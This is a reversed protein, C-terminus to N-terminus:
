FHLHIKLFTEAEGSTIQKLILTGDSSKCFKSKSKGGENKMSVISSISNMFASHYDKGLKLMRFAEFNRGCYFHVDALKEKGSSLSMCVDICQVDLFQQVSESSHTNSFYATVNRSVTNEEFIPDPLNNLIKQYEPSQLSTALISLSDSCDVVHHAGDFNLLKPSQFNSIVAPFDNLVEFISTRSLTFGSPFGRFSATDTPSCSIYGDTSRSEFVSKELGPSSAVPIITSSFDFSTDGSHDTLLPDDDTLLHSYQLKKLKEKKETTYFSINGFSFINEEKCNKAKTYHNSQSEFWKRIVKIKKELQMTMVKLLSLCQFFMWRQFLPYILNRSSNFNENWSLSSSIILSIFSQLQLVALPSRSISKLLAEFRTSITKFDSDLTQILATSTSSGILFHNEVVFSRLKLVFDRVINFKSTLIADVGETLKIKSFNNVKGPGLLSKRYLIDKQLYLVIDFYKLKYWSVTQECKPCKLHQGHFLFAILHCFSFSNSLDLVHHDEDCSSCAGYLKFTSSDDDSKPHKEASIVLIQDGFILVGLHDVVSLGNCQCCTSLQRRARSAELNFVDFSHTTSQNYFYSVECQRLDKHDGNMICDRFWEFVSVDFRTYPFIMRYHFPVCLNVQKNGEVATNVVVGWIVPFSVSSFYSPLVPVFSSVDYHLPRVLFPIHSPSFLFKPPLELGPLFPSDHFDIM